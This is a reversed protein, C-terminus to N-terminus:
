CRELAMMYGRMAASARPSLTIFARRRDAPDPHRILLGTETLKAIWRLATTPAVSAAICLSSVSVQTGELKAAYLDLLIDWAPEEFLGEGFFQDRLRRARITLRVDAATIEHQVAPGADFQMRRDAVDGDRGRLDEGRSLRGLLEAIRAVEENVRRLRATDSERWSDHLLTSESVGIALALAAVRDTLTPACLLEVGDGFLHASVLDIQAVAMAVVVQLDHASAWGAIAPLMDGLLADDVGEAEIMVVPRAAYRGIASAVASWDVRDLVRAGVLEVAATADAACAPQAIILVAAAATDAYSAIQELERAM